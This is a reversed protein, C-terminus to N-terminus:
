QSGGTPLAARPLEGQREIRQAQMRHAIVSAFSLRGCGRM